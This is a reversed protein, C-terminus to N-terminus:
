PESHRPRENRLFVCVFFREQEHNTTNGHFCTYSSSVVVNLRSLESMINYKSYLMISNNYIM